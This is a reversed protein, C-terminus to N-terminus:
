LRNRTNQAIHGKHPHPNFLDAPPGSACLRQRGHSGESGVRERGRGDLAVHGGPELRGGRHM